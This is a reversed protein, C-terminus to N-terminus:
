KAIIVKVSEVEKTNNDYMKVVYEGSNFASTDIKIQDTKNGINKTYVNDGNATYIDLKGAFGGHINIHMKDKAPIPYIRVKKNGEAEMVGTKTKCVGIAYDGAQINDVEIYGSKYSDSGKQPISVWEKNADKRYMIVASDTSSKILGKDLYVSNSFRFYAKVNAKKNFVGDITWYRYNSLKIKSDEKLPDPAVWNHAMRVLCSDNEPLNNVELKGVGQSCYVNENEKFVVNNQSVAHCSSGDPDIMVAVPTFSVEFEQSGTDGDFAIIDEYVEFKEGRFTLQVKHSKGIYDAGKHKKRVNVKVKFKDSAPTVTYSDISYHPTGPTFVWTDYFDKLDIGSQESFFDRQQYIDAHRFAYEELYARVAPFFKDDGMYDRLAQVVTGGKDYTTKGYTIETPIDYLAFYGKDKIHVSRMVSYHKNKLAELYETRGYLKEKYLMECFVAWGENLWMNAASACTVKDGFWMHSLEHTFLSEYKHTGDIAFSPYAINTPHEMAGIATSVYGIKEWPYPGFWSELEKTIEVLNDFTEEVKSFQSPKAYIEIPVKIDGNEYEKKYIQYDGIAFSALYTPITNNLKYKYETSGDDLKTESLKTGGSVGIKGEPATITVTYIARDRFDDVCPFWTKGLNHPDSEFGVGLNFAYEGSFHFGGWDESFPNGEYWVEVTYEKESKNTLPIIIRNGKQSFDNVDVDSVKVQTVQLDKLELQLTELVEVKNKINLKAYGEISKNNFDVDKIHIDYTQVDLTDSLTSTRFSSKHSCQHHQGISVSCIFNLLIFFLLNYANKM